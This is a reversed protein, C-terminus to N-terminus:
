VPSGQAPKSSHLGAMVWRLSVGWALSPNRHAAQAGDAGAPVGPPAKTKTCPSTMTGTGILAMLQAVQRACPCPHWTGSTLTLVLDSGGPSVQLM